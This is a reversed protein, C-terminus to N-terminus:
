TKSPASINRMMSKKLMRCGCLSTCSMSLLSFPFSSVLISSTQSSYNRALLARLHKLHRPSRSKVESHQLTALLVPIFSPLACTCLYSIFVFRFRRRIHWFGELLVHLRLTFPSPGKLHQRFTLSTVYKWISYNDLVAQLVSKFCPSFGRSAPDSFSSGVM